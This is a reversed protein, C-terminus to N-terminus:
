IRCWHPQQRKRTRRRTSISAPCATTARSAAPSQAAAMRTPSPWCLASSSTCPTWSRAWVTRRTRSAVLTWTQLSLCRHGRAQLHACERERKDAGVLVSADWHVAEGGSSTARSLARRWACAGAENDLQNLSARTGSMRSKIMEQTRKLEDFKGRLSRSMRNIEQLDRMQKRLKAELIAKEREKELHDKQEEYTRLQVKQEKLQRACAETEKMAIQLKKINKKLEEIQGEFESKIEEIEPNVAPGSSSSSSSTDAMTACPNTVTGCGGGFTITGTAPLREAFRPADNPENALLAALEDPSQKATEQPHWVCTFM